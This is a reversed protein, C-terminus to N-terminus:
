QVNEVGTCVQDVSVQPLRYARFLSANEVGTCVQDVSVGEKSSLQDIGYNEVGTCVQDVSVIADERKMGDRYTKSAPVFRISLCEKLPAAEEDTAATKSAPVFRISLCRHRRYSLRYRWGNEVGTCVQDVSM